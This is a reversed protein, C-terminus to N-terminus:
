LGALRNIEAPKVKLRAAAHLIDSWTTDDVPIGDALRRARMEREPEGALRVRDFGPQPPSAKVWDIFGQMESAFLAGDALKAPDFLITLM